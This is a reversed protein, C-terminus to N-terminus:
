MIIHLQLILLRQIRLFFKYLFVNHLIHQLIYIIPLPSFLLYVEGSIIEKTAKLGKKNTQIRCWKTSLLYFYKQFMLFSVQITYMYMCVHIHIHTRPKNFIRDSDRKRLASKRLYRRYDDESKYRRAFYFDNRM